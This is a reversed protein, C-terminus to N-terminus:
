NRERKSQQKLGENEKSQNEITVGATLTEKCYAEHSSLAEQAVSRNATSTSLHLLHAECGQCQWTTAVTRPSRGCHQRQSDRRRTRARRTRALARVLQADRRRRQARRRDGDYGPRKHALWRAKRELSGSAAPAAGAESRVPTAVAGSLLEGGIQVVLALGVAVDNGFGFPSAGDRRDTGLMYGFTWLLKGAAQFTEAVARRVLERAAGGEIDAAASRLREPVDEEGM